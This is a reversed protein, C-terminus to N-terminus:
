FMFSMIEPLMIRLMQEGVKILNFEVLRSKVTCFIFFILTKTKCKNRHKQKTNQFCNKKLESNKFNICSTSFPVVVHMHKHSYYFFYFMLLDLYTYKKFAQIIKNYILCYCKKEQKRHKTKNQKPM